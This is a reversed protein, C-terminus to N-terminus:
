YNLHRCRVTAGPGRLPKTAVIRVSSCFIESAPGPCWRTSGSTRVFDRFSRSKSPVRQLCSITRSNFDITGPLPWGSRKGCTEQKKWLIQVTKGPSECTPEFFPDQASLAVPLAQRLDRDLPADALNNLALIRALRQTVGLDYEQQLVATHEQGAAGDRLVAFRAPDGRRAPARHRGSRSLM